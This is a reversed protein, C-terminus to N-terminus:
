KEQSWRQSGMRWRTGLQLGRGSSTQPHSSAPEQERSRSEAAPGTGVRPPLLQHCSKEPCKARGGTNVTAGSFLQHHVDEIWGSCLGGSASWGYAAAPQQGCCQSSSESALGPRQSPLVPVHTVGATPPSPPLSLKDVMRELVDGLPFSLGLSHLSKATTRCGTPALTPFVDRKQNTLPNKKKRCLESFWESTPM